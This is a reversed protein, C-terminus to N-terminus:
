NALIKLAPGYHFKDIKVAEIYDVDGIYALNCWKTNSKRWIKSISGYRCLILPSVKVFREERLSIRFSFGM